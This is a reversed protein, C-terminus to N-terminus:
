RATWGGDITLASGTIGAAGDSCLYAVAHAVESPELIRGIPVSPLILRELVEAEPVGETVGLARLQGDVLPTQVYSPCIANVTVGRSAGELAVTRTLGLLGHKAAVYASKNPSAVLAHVSAINVIRGFGERYMWPVASRILYFPGFLMVRLLREWRDDPMEEVPAVYQLGANNVLVDVRGDRKVTADVLARCAAPSAVDIEAPLGGVLKATEAAAQADLDACVVTMGSGALVEAIARGIGSGAGTVIAVRSRV